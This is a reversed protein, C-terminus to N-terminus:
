DFGLKFPEVSITSQKSGSPRHARTAEQKGERDPMRGDVGRTKQDPRPPPAPLGHAAIRQQELEWECLEAPRDHNDPWNDSFWSMVADFTRVNFGPPNDSRLRDFFRHDNVAKKALTSAKVGAKKLYAAECVLM